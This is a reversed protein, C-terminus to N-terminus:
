GDPIAERDTIRIIATKWLKKWKHFLNLLFVRAIYVKKVYLLIVLVYCFPPM